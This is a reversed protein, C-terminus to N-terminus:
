GRSRTASAQTNAALHRLWGTLSDMVQDQIAISTFGHVVGPLTVLEITESGEELVRGLRGTRARRFARFLDEDSGYIVLTPVKRGTLEAMPDVFLQSAVDETGNGDGGRAAIARWKAAAIRRYARRVEPEFLGRVVKPRLARRAFDKTSIGTALIKSLREGMKMDLVPASILAMGALEPILPTSALATRAGFCSGVL